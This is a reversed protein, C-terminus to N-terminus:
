SPDGLICRCTGSWLVRLVEAETIWGSGDVSMFSMDCYRYMARALKKKFLPSPVRCFETSTKIHFVHLCHLQPNYPINGPQITFMHKVISFFRLITQIHVSHNWFFFLVESSAWVGPGRKTVIGRASFWGTLPSRSWPASVDMGRKAGEVGVPLQVSLIPNISNYVCGWWKRTPRM